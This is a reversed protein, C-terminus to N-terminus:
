APPRPQILSLARRQAPHHQVPRLHLRRPQAGPRQRLRAPLDFLAPAHRVVGPVHAPQHAAEARPLGELAGAIAQMPAAAARNTERRALRRLEAASVDDRIPLGKAGM